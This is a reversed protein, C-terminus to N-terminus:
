KILSNITLQSKPNTLNIFRFSLNQQVFFAINSYCYFKAIVFMCNNQSYCTAEYNGFWGEILQKKKLWNNFMFTM